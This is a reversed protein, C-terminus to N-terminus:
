RSIIIKEKHLLNDNQKLTIIYIGGPLDETISINQNGNITESYVVQGSLDYIVAQCNQEDLGSITIPSGTTYPNRFTLEIDEGQKTNDYVGAYGYKYELVMRWLKFNYWEQFYESWHQILKETINGDTDYEFEVRKMNHWTYHKPKKIKFVAEVLYNEENYDFLKMERGEWSHHKHDWLQHLNMTRNGSDDNRFVHRGKKIWVEKCPKWDQHIIIALHEHKYFFINRHSKIWHKIPHKWKHILRSRLRGKDDYFYHNLYKNGWKEAFYRWARITDSKLTDENYSFLRHHRNVWQASDVSWRQTLAKTIKDYENYANFRRFYNVWKKHYRHWFRIVKKTRNGNDDYGYTFHLGNVWGHEPVLYQYLKGIVLEKENYKKIIRECPVWKQKQKNWKYGIITDTGNEREIYKYYNEESLNVEKYDETATLDINEQDLKEQLIEPIEYNQASVGAIILVTALLLIIRKM